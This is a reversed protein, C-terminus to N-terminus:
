QEQSGQVPVPKPRDRQWSRIVFTRLGSIFTINMMLLNINKSPWFVTQKGHIDLVDDLLFVLVNDPKIDLHLIRNSPLYSLGKAADLMVKAKIRHDLGARKKDEMLSRCPTFERVMCM